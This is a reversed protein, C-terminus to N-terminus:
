VSRLAGLILFAQLDWGPALPPSAGASIKPAAGFGPSSQAASAGERYGWLTPGPSVPSAGVTPFISPVDALLELPSRCFHM